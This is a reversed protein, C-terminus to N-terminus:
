VLYLLPFLFIWVLDVLHWYLGANEVPVFYERSFEQRWCRWGMWTLVGLGATVHIAHLATSLWYLLFFLPVGPAEVDMRFYRGPLAGEHIKHGYEVSKIVLFTAGLAFTIVLLLAALRGRDERASAIGLAVTLSSTVLAVTNVAGLTVDLHSSGELFGEPYISRYLTYAVFLGAFLLIETALFLWMGLRAAHLESDADPFHDARAAATGRGESSM